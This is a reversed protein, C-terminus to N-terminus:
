FDLTLPINNSIIFRNDHYITEKPIYTNVFPGSQFQFHVYDDIGLYTRVYRKVNRLTLITLSEEIEIVLM